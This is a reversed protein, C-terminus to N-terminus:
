PALNNLNMFLVFNSVCVCVCLYIYVRVLASRQVLLITRDDCLGSGVFWLVSSIGHGYCFEFGCGWSDYETNVLACLHISAGSKNKLLRNGSLHDFVATTM